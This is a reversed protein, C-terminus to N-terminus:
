KTVVVATGSATIILMGERIVEYDLAVGVVANAGLAQAQHSMEKLVSQRVEALKQDYTGSRGGMITDKVINEGMISAGSVISLYQHVPRGEITPTTTLIM